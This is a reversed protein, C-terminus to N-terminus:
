GSQGNQNRRETKKKKEIEIPQPLVSYLGIKYGAKEKKGILVNGPSTSLSLHYLVRLEFEIGCV